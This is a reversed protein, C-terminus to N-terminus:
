IDTNFASYSVSCPDDPKEKVAAELAKLQTTYDGVNGYLQTYNQVVAGWKDEPLAGMALETAGAAQTWKGTQFLSQAIMMM